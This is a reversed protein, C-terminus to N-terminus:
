PVLMSKRLSAAKDALGLRSVLELAFLLAVGAGKGTLIRDDFEVDKGTYVAGPLKAEVGPYATVRRGQLLGAAHLALPAACIAAVLGGQRHVAQCLERVAASAALHTSGPMGGPLIAAALDTATLGTLSRDATITIGHAGTVTLEATVAALTTEIGARRLVDIIAVAELEEFGPALIVATKM